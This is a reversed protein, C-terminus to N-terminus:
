ADKWGLEKDALVYIRLKKKKLEMIENCKNELYEKQWYRHSKGFREETEQLEQQM